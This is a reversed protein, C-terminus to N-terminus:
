NQEFGLSSFIKVVQICQTNRSYRLFAMEHLIKSGTGPPIPETGIFYANRKM